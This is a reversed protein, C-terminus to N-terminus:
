CTGVNIDFYTLHDLISTFPVISNSCLSTELEHECIQVKNEGDVIWNEIGPHLFGFAQPPLHPVIDRDHVVRQFPIDTGTVYYAFDPNGVRPAGYTFIRLNDPTFRIDRQYLDLAALVAMAGGLSHGSVETDYDPHADLEKQMTLIVNQAVEKYSNYFGTHVKAGKVPTYSTAIFTFDAIWNRISSSGRFTLYLKKKADDRIIYGNTDYLLTSFTKVMTAGSVASCQACDLKGGPIVSDCYSMSSLKTYFTLEEIHDVSALSVGTNSSAYAARPRTAPQPPADLAMGGKNETGNPLKGNSDMARQESMLDAMPLTRPLRTRNAIIPPLSVAAATKPDVPAANSLPFLLSLGALCSLLVVAVKM